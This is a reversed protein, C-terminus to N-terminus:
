LAEVDVTAVLQGAQGLGEIAGEVRQLARHLRLAVQHGVGRVLQARRDGGDAGVELEHAVLMQERGRIALGQAAVDDLLEVLEGREDTVHHLQRAAALQAALRPLDAQVLDDGRRDLARAAARRLQHDRGRQLRGQDHALPVPDGARDGIQQVVGGLVALGAAGDLHREGGARQRDAVVPRAEMLLVQREDKVAEVAGPVRASLGARPQAQRDDALGGLGVAAEHAGGVGGPAARQQLDPEPRRELEVLRQLGARDAPARRATAVGGLLPALSPTCACAAGRLRRLGLVDEVTQLISYQDVPAGLRAGARAVPGALITAIHGGRALRCCGDDTSGEDWTLILLGRRGLAALLPPVVRALFADGQAPACNHMDHCLNPTVWVFRPMTRAQEDRALETLAVVHACQAPDHAVRGYYMFPDHKKAYEGAEAGAYCPRPLNEMYAKWSLHAATLQDALSIASPVSCDTCDSTIHFTSGGTLALYNPLSPHTIAYLSRVLAYRHALANIFPTQRSGIISGYEENEMVIVAIHAPPGGRLSTVPSPTSQVTGHRVASTGCGCLALVLAVVLALAPGALGSRRSM